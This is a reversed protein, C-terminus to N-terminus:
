ESQQRGSSAYDARHCEETGCRADTIAVLDVQSPGGALFIFICARARPEFHPAVVSLEEGLVNDQALLSLLAASGLGSGASTLFRRRSQWARTTFDTSPRNM